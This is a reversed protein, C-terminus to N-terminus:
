PKPRPKARRNTKLSRALNAPTWHARDRDAARGREIRRMAVYPQGLNPAENNRTVTTTAGGGGIRFGVQRIAGDLDVPVIGPYVATEPETVQFQAEAADLYSDAASDADAANTAVGVLAYNQDYQPTHTKIIEDHKLYLPATGGNAGTARQREYRELALSDADRVSCSTRLVLEAPAALIEFGASGTASAHANRYVPEDFIVLGRAVDITFGRRYAPGSSQAAGPGKPEELPVLQAASNFVDLADPHWVGFVIAPLNATQGNESTTAVQEDEIPLIQELRNVVNGYSGEYGPLVLPTQIRYYRFVSKQALSRSAADVQHFYPLDVKSWGGPPRYGLEDLPAFADGTSADNGTLGVAELPLDVQYRNPGGVVAITDPREPVNISASREIADLVPLGAGAGVRRIAVRNDLRLVVHCGLEDCLRVLAEASVDGDWEVSPRSDNPLDAVDFDQEGMAELCLTALEQPTRQTDATDATGQQLTFDDRRVNYTGSIQGFRWRWRRDLLTVHSVAGGPTRSVSGLDLRCDPFELSVGAFSISLTGYEAPLALQPVISLRIASPSIGHSLNISADLLTGIGPYSALGQPDGAM